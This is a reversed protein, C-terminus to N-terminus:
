QAQHSKALTHFRYVTSHGIRVSHIIAEPHRARLQESAIGLSTPHIEYDGTTVDLALFKGTEQPEVLRRIRTEYTEKGKAVLAQADAITATM